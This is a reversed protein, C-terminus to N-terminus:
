PLDEVCWVHAGSNCFATSPLWPSSRIAAGNWTHDLAVLTGSDTGSVSTWNFCNGDGANSSGSPVGGTRIWGQTNAPPAGMGGDAQMFGLGTNYQLNSTDFIEWL